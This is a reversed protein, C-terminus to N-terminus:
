IPTILQKEAQMKKKRIKFTCHSFLTQVFIRRERKHNNTRMQCNRKKVTKKQKSTQLPNKLFPRGLGDM